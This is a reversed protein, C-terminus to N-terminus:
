RNKSELLVRNETKIENRVETELQERLEDDVIYVQAVQVVDLELGWGDTDQGQIVDELTARVAETLTTKRQEICEEMTMHSVVERLEGLCIHSLLEQIEKHGAGNTTFDFRKATAEARTVRYIVIGKFRLPIGDTTEQTMEFETERQVSPVFVCTAGAWLFASAGLGRNKIESRHAVVLYENPKAKVFRM